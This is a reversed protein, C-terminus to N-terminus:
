DAGRCFNAQISGSLCCVTEQVMQQNVVVPFLVFVVLACLHIGVRRKLCAGSCPNSSAQSISAKKSKSLKRARQQWGIWLVNARCQLGTAKRNSPMWFARRLGVRASTTEFIEAAAVRDRQILVPACAV